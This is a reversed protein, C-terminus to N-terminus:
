LPHQSATQDHLALETVEIKAAFVSFCIFIRFSKEGKEVDLFSSEKQIFSAKLNDSFAKEFLSTGM